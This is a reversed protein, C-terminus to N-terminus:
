ENDQRKIRMAMVTVVMVMMVIMMVCKMGHTVIVNWLIMNVM